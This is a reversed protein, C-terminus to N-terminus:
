LRVVWLEGPSAQLLAETKAIDWGSLVEAVEPSSCVFEPSPAVRPPSAM